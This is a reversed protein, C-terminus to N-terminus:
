ASVVPSSHSQRDHKAQADEGGQGLCGLLDGMQRLLQLDEESLSGGERGRDPESVASSITALQKVLRRVMAGVVPLIEELAYAAHFLDQAVVRCRDVGAHVACARGIDDHTSSNGEQSRGSRAPLRV